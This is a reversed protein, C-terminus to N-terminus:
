PKRGDWGRARRLSPVRGASGMWFRRGQKWIPLRLFVDGNCPRGPSVPALFPMGLSRMGCISVISATACLVLGYVGFICGALLFLFQGIRIALSLAYDPVAYSGVSSVAVVIMLLPHVLKAEVASQGLVLGSVTGLTSGVAGPVRIGAEVILNFLFLMLLMEAPISFPVSAQSELVATLLALPLAEPQYTVVAVFLGPLLLTCLAGLYRILRLFSGAMWRSSTDDPTHLLHFLSVPMCLAQPSGDLLLVIQGELLFSAARDPRETLCTQPLLAFPHDELLQELVGISLVHAVHIGELRGRISRLLEEDVTDALYMVCLSVPASEGIKTMEGILKPTPLIRRILTINDRISENFGQHPGTVVSETLPQSIGRRVFSRVDFCLACAMGDALLVAEGYALRSAAGQARDERNAEGIPITLLLAEELEGSLPHEAHELCPALLFRQVYEASVMGDLMYVAAGRGYVRLERKKFDQNTKLSLVRELAACNDTLVSVFRPM